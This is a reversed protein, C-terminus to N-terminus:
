LSQIKRNIEILRDDFPMHFVIFELDNTSEKFDDLSNKLTNIQSSAVKKLNNNLFVFHMILTRHIDRSVSIIDNLVKLTEEDLNSAEAWSLEEFKEVLGFIFDSDEKIKNQLELVRDLFNNINETENKRKYSFDRVEKFTEFIQVKANACEM